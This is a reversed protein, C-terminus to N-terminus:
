NVVKKSVVIQADSTIQVILVQNGFKSSDITTETANVKSREILLRGSIDFIKVKEITASGANIQIAGNNKYVVVSNENFTPLNVGLTSQYVIEFRTNFVGAETAFTYSGARLDHTTSTLNDKLFVSQDGAFLGDFSGLAITYTGALQSKFGLSVVDNADFPLARGQIAFEEANIISTLATQSDNFFRGDIAADVDQTANPMYAVMTQSFLGATNTLNLWIRSRDEAIKLFQNANDVVRMANTFSLTTATSKAVFGQGTQIFGNPTLALPDNGSNSVGGATTYTAYSSNATNNTKRWFYLAETIGNATIFANASITSPYPNGIANYSGNTVALNVTGNNPNGAFTGNWVTPTAPHNNPMRILYGSGVAFNTASPSAVAAYLNTSPDYTYFRTALTMPTFSQLQQGDVPSSWLTYDQRMLSASNRNVTINGTNAVNNVQILNANNEVVVDTATLNNVLGNQVTVNTGSNITLSGSNVTAKKATFAGNATTSYIGAIVAEITSDPAGNSWSTGNWTTSAVSTVTIDDLKIRDRSGSGSNSYYIWRLQINANNDVATPLAINTFTQSGNTGNLTTLYETLPSVDTFSGSTGIRYQLRLGNVRSVGDNLQQATFTVKVDSRNTTNIAVVIAGIHNTGSNLLSIGNAVENRISGSTITGTSVVLARDSSAANTVNASIPEAAFSHGQMSTPYVVTTGAAFGTFSFNSASLDHATPNTQGFSKVSMLFMFAFCWFLSRLAKKFILTNKM